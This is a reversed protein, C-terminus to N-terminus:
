IRADVLGLRVAETAAVKRSGVGLKGLVASVHHDVTKSSIFLRNSIEDNTHGDCILALVERERRTLGAPHARTTSRAGSPISKIGLDRMKRRAVRQAATAGLRELRILADRLLAEDTSDLLALAANYPCGLDDWQRAAGVQDGAIQSAYPEVIQTQSRAPGCVRHRWAAVESCALAGCQAVVAEALEIERVAADIDGQLWHAEARALRASWIWQPESLGDSALAAEDLCDWVDADDRRARVKGLAILPNLRNVPSAVQELLRGCMSTVEDWRGLMELSVTRAGRLCTGFTAIDHEDCYAVGNVFSSEGEAFRLSGCYMAYINTYARGALGHLDHTIAIDLARELLHQWDGGLEAKTCGETNLADSHVDPLGLQEALAQARRALEVAEAHESQQMRRSALNAYAWALESSPGLPELVELAQTVARNAEEGRCL